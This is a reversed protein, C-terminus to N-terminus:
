PASVIVLGADSAARINDGASEPWQVVLKGILDDLASLEFADYFTPMTARAIFSHLLHAADYDYVIDGPVNGGARLKFQRFAALQAHGDTTAIFSLVPTDDAIRAGDQMRDYMLLVGARQVDGISRFDDSMDEAHLENRIAITRTVDLGRARLLDQLRLM